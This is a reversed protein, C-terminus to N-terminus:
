LVPLLMGGPAQIMQDDPFGYHSEASYALRAAQGVSLTHYWSLETFLLGYYDLAMAPRVFFFLPLAELVMLGGASIIARGEKGGLLLCGILALVLAIVVMSSTLLFQTLQDDLSM